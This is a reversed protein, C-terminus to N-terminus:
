NTKGYWKRVANVGPCENPKDCHCVCVSLAGVYSKNPCPNDESFLPYEGARHAEYEANEIIEPKIEPAEVLTILAELRDFLECFETIPMEQWHDALILHDHHYSKKVAGSDGTAWVIARGLTSAYKGPTWTCSIINNNYGRQINCVPVFKNYHGIYDPGKIDIKIHLLRGEIRTWFDLAVSAGDVHRDVGGSVDFCASYMEGEKIAYRAPLMEPPAIRVHGDRGQAMPVLNSFQKMLDIAGRLGDVQYCCMDGISSNVIHRPPVPLSSEIAQNAELAALEKQQKEVLAARASEQRLREAEAKDRAPKNAAVAAAHTEQQFIELRTIVARLREVFHAIKRAKLLDGMQLAIQYGAHLNAGKDSYEENFKALDARRAAVVEKADCLRAKRSEVAAATATLVRIMEIIM